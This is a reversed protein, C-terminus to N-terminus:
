LLVVCVVNLIVQFHLDVKDLDDFFTVMIHRGIRSGATQKRSKVLTGDKNILPLPSVPTAKDEPLHSDKRSKRRDEEWGPYIGNLADKVKKFMNEKLRAQFESDLDDMMYKPVQCM